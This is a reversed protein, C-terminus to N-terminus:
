PSAHYGHYMRRSASRGAFTNKARRWTIPQDHPDQQHADARNALRDCPHGRLAVPALLHDEGVIVELTGAGELPLQAVNVAKRNFADIGAVGGRDRVHRPPM